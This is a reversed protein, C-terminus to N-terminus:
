YVAALCTNIYHMVNCNSQKEEMVIVTVIVNKKMMYHM